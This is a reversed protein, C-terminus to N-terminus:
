QSGPSWRPPSLATAPQGHYSLTLDSSSKLSHDTGPSSRCDTPRNRARIPHQADTAGLQIVVYNPDFDFVQRKLHKVAGPAPLGALSILHSQVSRSLIREVFGCAVEFLGGGDHPYGSIM